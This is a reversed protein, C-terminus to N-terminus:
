GGHESAVVALTNEWGDGAAVICSQGKVDTMLMTWTGSTSVFVEVVAANAAVCYGIRREQIAEALRTVVDGHAGCVFQAQASLSPLAMAAGLVALRIWRFLFNRAM